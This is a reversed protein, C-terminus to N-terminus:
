ALTKPKDEYINPFNWLSAISGKTNAWAFGLRSDKRKLLIKLNVLILSRFLYLWYKLFKERRIVYLNSSVGHPYKWLNHPEDTFVNIDSTNKMHHHVISDSVYFGMMGASTIRNSYELDDGWIKFSKIPYGVQEITKRGILFSVFSCEKVILVNKDEYLNFPTGHSFTEIIPLNMKLITDDKWLCKSGLFGINENKVFRIKEMLKELTDPRAMTDDDVIWFWDYGSEYDSKLATHRGGGSGLNKSYGMYKFKVPRGKADKIETEAVGPEQQNVKPLKSIYKEELLMQDTGDTSGNNLVTIAALPYNQKTLASLCQKLLSKRNMTVVNAAIKPYNSM